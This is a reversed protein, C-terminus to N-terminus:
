RHRCTNREHRASRVFTSHIRVSSVPCTSRHHCSRTSLPPMGARRPDNPCGTLRHTPSATGGRWWCALSVWRSRRHTPAGPNPRSLRASPDSPPGPGIGGDGPGNGDDEDDIDDGPRQVLQRARRGSHINRIWWIGLFLLSVVIIVIGVSSVATSRVTDRAAALTLSGDPSSVTVDLSFVGSTRSVVPVRLVTEPGHLVMDCTESTRGEVECSGDPPRFARFGLKPSALTIRVHPSVKADSIVILPLTAKLSTLTVSTNGPLRVTEEAGQVTKEM